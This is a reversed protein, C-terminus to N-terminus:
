GGYSYLMALAIRGIDSKIGVKEEHTRSEESVLYKVLDELFEDATKCGNDVYQTTRYELIVSVFDSLDHMTELCALFEDPFESDWPGKGLPHESVHREILARYRSAM